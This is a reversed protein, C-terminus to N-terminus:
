PSLRGSRLVRLLAHSLIVPYLAVNRVMSIPWLYSPAGGSKRGQRSECLARSLRRLHSPGFPGDNIGAVLELPLGREGRLAGCWAGVMAANTDTDGGAKIASQLAILSEGGFRLFVFASIPVSQIVFGSSGIQRSADDVATSKDALERALQLAGRLSIETVVNIAEDFSEYRAQDTVSQARSFLSAAWEAVFLAAEVARSDTHTTSALATGFQMRKAPDDHFFVGIIAARMAAGNGASHIGSAKIGTIMKLCAFSTARGVGFPLRCFWGVMARQFDRACRDVDNPHHILAQAILASQETDDSTFGINALLYYRNIEQPFWAAITKGSLGEM